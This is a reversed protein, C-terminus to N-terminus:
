DPAGAVLSLDDLHDRVHRALAIEAGYAFHPVDYTFLRQGYTALLQAPEAIPRETFGPRLVEPGVEGAPPEAATRALSAIIEEAAEDLATRRETWMEALRPVLELMGTAGRRSEKPFYTGAFFPRREATMIVTLPWGGSGTMLQCVTMYLQDVDPREERDVKICVFTENLLQAVEPDEFSERAMVHCWHCTAYGISLFVPRDLARAREFAEDGWPFWDVAQHAHALLYPSKENILRNAPRADNTM